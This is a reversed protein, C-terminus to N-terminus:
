YVTDHLTAKLLKVNQSLHIQAKKLEIIKNSKRVPFMAHINFIQIM